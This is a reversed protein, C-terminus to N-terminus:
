PIRIGNLVRGDAFRMWLLFGSPRGDRAPRIAVTVAGGPALYDKDAGRLERRVTAAGAGEVAWVAHHKSADVADVVFVAHPNALQVRVLTGTLLVTQSTDFAAISHHAATPTALWVALGLM